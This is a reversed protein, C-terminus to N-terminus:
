HGAAGEAQHGVTAAEVALSGEVLARWLVRRRPKGSSTRLITGPPGPLIEIHADSAERRLVSMAEEVWAGAPAEVIAAISDTGGATAPVVVCRGPPVGEIACLKSELDEAYLTKGRVKLADGIRGVVFIEGDLTFGSDGSRLTGGSLTTSSSENSGRYGKAVTSGRIVLEGLMGDPLTRGQDDRVAVELHPLPRGCGVLWGAGDSAVEDGLEAEREITVDEGFRLQSWDPRVLRPTEGQPHISVALTAEALGYAPLFTDPRFGHPELLAAFRGLARPDLREAGVIAVRWASFDMGELQEPRVRKACYAFGFNPAATMVSDARGFRELWRLPERVFQEPRMSWFDRQHIIPTLFCGILGMDHYLPLWHTGTEGPGWEIWDRVVEIHTELNDWSVCVGRPRGSSGSTFQLLALDSRPAVNMEVSRDADSIALPPRSLGAASAARSVLGLLDRETLVADGAIRLLAALDRAYDDASEFFTPPILPSPTAGACLAAFFAVAFKPGSPAVISVIDGRAVGQEALLAATTHVGQALEEYTSLDWGGEDNAFHAGKSADPADLWDLLGTTM